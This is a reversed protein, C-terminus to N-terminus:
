IGYRGRIANFNQQIESASLAKNYIKQGNLRGIFYAGTGRRGIELAKTANTINGTSTTSNLQVGNRYLRLTTGDYTAVIHSWINLLDSDNYTTGIANQTGTTFRETALYLTGSGGNLYINYGDRSGVSTDERNFIGTWTSAGPNSTPYMWVELTYPLRNLFQLESASAFSIYDGSGDFVFVGSNASSYTPGNLTGINGKGSVDNFATSSSQDAVGTSPYSRGPGWMIRVAGTYGSTGNSFTNMNAGGGRGYSGSSGTGLLGQGTGSGALCGSTCNSSIYKSTGRTTAHGTYTGTSGGGGGTAPLSASGSGTGGSYGNGGGDGVYTGGSGGTASSNGYGGGGGGGKVTTANIFYSDGGNDAPNASYPPGDWYDGAGGGGVVVTYSQGPTVPINNKYGLGGGGGGGAGGVGNGGGNGGGGGGICVVSVSTVGSPCTWSYTGSSTYTQQGFVGTNYSKSNAADLALVLGDTVIRPNYAITM